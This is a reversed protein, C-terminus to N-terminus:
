GNRQVNNNEKEYIENRGYRFQDCKYSFTTFANHEECVGHYGNLMLKAIFHKCNACKVDCSM